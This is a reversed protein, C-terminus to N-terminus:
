NELQEDLWQVVENLVQEKDTDHHLEHYGGEWKRITANEGIQNKLEDSATHDTLQDGTGHFIYVPLQLAKAEALAWLGADVTPFFMAPTILDHVLPDEEYLKVEEPIRSIASTDLKSSDSYAPYIKMMLRGLLVQFKPPPFALRIWPSSLVAAKVNPKFKLLTNATVNGGMSHGYIFVPLGPFRSEAEELVKVAARYLTDMDPSHGRKGDTKGHGIQDYSIVAYGGQNLRNATREYRGSHEGMGHVIAVVAKPSEPSWLQGFYKTKGDKWNFTEHKIQM